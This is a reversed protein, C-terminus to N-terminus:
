FSKGQRFPPVLTRECFLHEQMQMLPNVPGVQPSPLAVPQAVVFRTDVSPCDFMWFTVSPRAMGRSSASELLFKEIGSEPVVISARKLEPLREQMACFENTVNSPREVLDPEGESSTSSM